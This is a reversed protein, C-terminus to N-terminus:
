SSTIWMFDLFVKLLPLDTSPQVHLTGEPWHHAACIIQSCLFRLWKLLPALLFRGDPVLWPRVKIKSPLLLNEYSCLKPISKKYPLQIFQECYYSWPVAKRWPCCRSQAACWPFIWGPNTQNQEFQLHKGKSTICCKSVIKIVSRIRKKILPTM